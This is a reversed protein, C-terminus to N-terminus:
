SSGTESVKSVGLAVILGAFTWFYLNVPFIDPVDLFLWLTALGVTTAGFALALAHREPTQEGRLVRVCQMMLRVAIWAAFVLGVIGQELFTKLVANDVFTRAKAVQVGLAGAAAIDYLSINATRGLLTVTDGLGEGVLVGRNSVHALLGAVIELRARNSAYAPDLASGLIARTRPVAFVAGGLVGVLLVAGAAMRPRWAITFLGIGGMLSAASALWPGRSYTAFLAGLACVFLALSTLRVARGRLFAACAAALPLVFLLYGGLINPHALVGAARPIWVSRAPDFRLVAGDVFLLRQVLALMLVLAATSLFTLIWTRLRDPGSVLRAAVLILPVYLLLDRLRLLGLATIDAQLFSVVDWTALLLIPVMLPGLTRTAPVRFVRVFLTLIVIDKLLTLPGLVVTAKLILLFPAVATLFLFAAWPARWTGFALWAAALLLLGAQASFLLGLFLAVAGVGLLSLLRADGIPQRLRPVFSM